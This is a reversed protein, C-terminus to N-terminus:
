RVSIPEMTEAAQRACSKPFGGKPCEPSRAIEVKKRFSFSHGQLALQCRGLPLVKGVKFPICIREAQKGVLKLSPSLSSKYEGVGGQCADHFIGKM